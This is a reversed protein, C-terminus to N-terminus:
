KKKEKKGADPKVVEISGAKDTSGPALVIKVVNGKKLLKLDKAEIMITKDTKTEQDKVVIENKAKDISVIKGLITNASETSATVTPEQSPKGSNSAAFTVSTFCVLALLVMFSSIIKKM